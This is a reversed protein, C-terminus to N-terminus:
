RYGADGTDDRQDTQRRQDSAVEAESADQGLVPGWSTVQGHAKEREDEPDQDAERDV